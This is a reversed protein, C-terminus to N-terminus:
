SYIVPFDSKLKNYVDWDNWLIANSAMTAYPEVCNAMVFELFLTEKKGLKNKEVNNSYALLADVLKKAEYVDVARAVIYSGGKGVSRWVAVEMVPKADTSIYCWYRENGYRKESM